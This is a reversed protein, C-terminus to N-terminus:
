TTGIDHKGDLTCTTKHILNAENYPDGFMCRGNVKSAARCGCKKPATIKDFIDHMIKSNLDALLMEKINTHHKYIM